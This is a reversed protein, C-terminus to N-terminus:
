PATFSWPGDDNGQRHMPRQSRKTAPCAMPMGITMREIPFGEFTEPLEPMQRERGRITAVVIVDEPGAKIIVMCFSGDLGHQEMLRDVAERVLQKSM